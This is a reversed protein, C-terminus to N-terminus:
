IFQESTIGVALQLLYMRDCFTYHRQFLFVSRQRIFLQAAFRVQEPLPQLVSLRKLIKQRFGEGGRPLCGPAHQPHLREINLHYAADDQMLPANGFHLGTFAFRENGNQRRIEVRQGSLAHVDDRHIVIKGPTVALPHALHVAEQAKGDAQDYVPQIGCLPLFGIGAINGVACVILHAKVIQTVVHGKVLLIHDLATVAEGNDVLHVGDQDVFGTGRQDNGALSVLAGIKVPLSVVKDRPQFFQHIGADILLFFLALIDVRIIDDIFLRFRCRECGAADGLRLLCKRQLIQRINFVGREAMMDVLRQLRVTDHLPIDVIDHFVSFDDDDILERATQHEAAAIGFPEMLGDLGLLMHIHLLFVFGKGGDGELIIEAQVPLEGAHGASSRCFRFFELGDVIQINNLNRGVLRDDTLIVRINHIFVVDSLVPRNDLLDNGAIFFSLRHQDTRNGDLLAFVNGRQQFPPAHRMGHQICLVMLLFRLDNRLRASRPRYGNRRVHGSSAGIDNEAAVRFKHGPHIQPLFAKGIFHDRFGCAKCLRVIFVDQSGSLKKGFLQCLVLLFGVGLCFKDLSGAAQEDEARLAVLGSTDVILQAATGATLAVRAFAPEIQCQRIVDHTKEARLPDHAHHFRQIHVVIRRKIVLHKGIGDLLRLLGHLGAVELRTFGDQLVVVDHVLLTFDDVAFAALHQIALIQLLLDHIHHPFKNGGRHRVPQAAALRLGLSLQILRKGRKGFQEQRCSGYFNGFEASGNRLLPQRFDHLIQSDSGIFGSFLGEADHGVAGRQHALKLAHDHQPHHIFIPHVM